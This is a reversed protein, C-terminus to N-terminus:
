SLCHLCVIWILSLNLIRKISCHFFLDCKASPVDCMQDRASLASMRSGSSAKFNFKTEVLCYYSSYILPKHISTPEPHSLGGSWILLDLDDLLLCGWRCNRERGEVWRRGWFGASIMPLAKTDLSPLLDVHSFFNEFHELKYSIFFCRLGSLIVLICM